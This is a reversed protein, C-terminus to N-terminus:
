KIIVSIDFLYALIAAFALWINRSLDHTHKAVDRKDDGDLEKAFVVWDLWFFIPPLFALESWRGGIQKRSFSLFEDWPFLGAHLSAVAFVGAAIGCCWNFTSRAM